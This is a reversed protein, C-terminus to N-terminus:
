DEDSKTKEKSVIREYFKRTHKLANALFRQEQSRVRKMDLIRAEVVTGEKLEPPSATRKVFDSM